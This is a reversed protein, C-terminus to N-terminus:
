NAAPDQRRSTKSPIHSRRGPRMYASAICLRMVDSVRCSEHPYRSAPPHRHLDGLRTTERCWPRVSPAEALRHRQSSLVALSPSSPCIHPCLSSSIASRFGSRGDCSRRRGGMPRAVCTRCDTLARLADCIEDRRQGLHGIRQELASRRIRQLNDFSAASKVHLGEEGGM